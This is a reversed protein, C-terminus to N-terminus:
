LACSTKVPPCLLHQHSSPPPPPVTLLPIKFLPSLLIVPNFATLAGEQEHTSNEHVPGMVNLWTSESVRIERVSVQVGM